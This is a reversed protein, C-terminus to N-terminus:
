TLVLPYHPPPLASPSTMLKVIHQGGAVASFWAYTKDNKEYVRIIPIIHISGGGGGFFPNKM